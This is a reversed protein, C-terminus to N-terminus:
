LAPVVPGILLIVEGANSDRHYDFQALALYYSYLRSSLAFHMSAAAIRQMPYRKPQRPDPPTRMESLVARADVSPSEPAACSHLAASFITTPVLRSGFLRRHRPALTGRRCAAGNPKVGTLTNRYRAHLGPYKAISHSFVAHRRHSAPHPEFFNGASASPSVRCQSFASGRVSRDARSLHPPDPSSGLPRRPWRVAHVLFLSVFHAAFV